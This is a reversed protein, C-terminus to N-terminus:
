SSLSSKPFSSVSALPPPSKKELLHKIELVVANFHPTPLNQECRKKTFLELAETIQATTCVFEPFCRKLELSINNVIQPKLIPPPPPLAPKPPAASLSGKSPPLVLGPPPKAISVIPTSSKSARTVPTTTKQSATVPPTPTASVVPSATSVTNKILEQLGLSNDGELNFMRLKSLVGNSGSSGGLNLVNGSSGGRLMPNLAQYKEHVSSSYAREIQMQHTLTRVALKEGDLDQKLKLLTVTTQDKSGNTVSKTAEDLYQEKLRKIEEVACDKEVRLLDAKKKWDEQDKIFENLKSVIRKQEVLESSLQNIRQNLAAVQPSPNTGNSSKSDSSTSGSAPAKKTIEAATPPQPPTKISVSSATAFTGFGNNVSTTSLTMSLSSPQLSVSASSPVAAPIKSINSVPTLASPVASTSTPLSAKRPGIQTQALPTAPVSSKVASQSSMAGTVTQRGLPLDAKKFEEAMPKTVTLPPQPKQRTLMSAKSAAYGLPLKFMNFWADKMKVVDGSRGAWGDIVM